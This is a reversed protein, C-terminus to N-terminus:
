YNSTFYVELNDDVGSSFGGVSGGVPGGTKILGIGGGGGGVGISNSDIENSLDHNEQNFNTSIRSQNQSKRGIM